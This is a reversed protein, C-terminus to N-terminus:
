LSSLFTLFISFLRFPLPPSPVYKAAQKRKLAIMKEAIDTPM